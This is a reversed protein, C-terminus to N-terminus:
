MSLEHEDSSDPTLNNYGELDKQIKDIKDYFFRCFNQSLEQSDGEPLTNEQQKSALM